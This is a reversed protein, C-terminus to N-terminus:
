IKEGLIYAKIFNIIKRRETDGELMNILTQLDAPDVKIFNSQWISTDTEEIKYAKNKM